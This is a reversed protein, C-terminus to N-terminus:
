TCRYFTCTLATASTGHIMDSHSTPACPWLSRRPQPQLGEEEEIDREDSEIINEMVSSYVGM